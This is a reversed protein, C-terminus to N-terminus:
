PSVVINGVMGAEKHGPQICVVTYTGPKNALFTGSQQKGGGVNVLRVNKDAGETIFDHPIFGGNKFVIKTSEGAKVTITDPNFRMTDLGIVRIGTGDDDASGAAASGCGSFLLAGVLLGGVLHPRIHTAM